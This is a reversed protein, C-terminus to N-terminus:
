SQRPQRRYQTPSQGSNRSFFRTFYAPDAFGLAYGIEAVSLNSYLLSRRAELIARQDLMAGPSRGAIRSCAMRLSTESTGLASAHVAISERLRFRNEIQARFRAVLGAYQGPDPTVVTGSAPLMRLVVVLMALLAAEVAVHHGKASWALEQRLTSMCYSLRTVAAEDPTLSQPRDFVPALDPHRTILDKLHTRALTLVSGSSESTWGFGHVVGAPILLLAPADFCMPADEAQMSGGGSTILFMQVLDAHAHPRITWESPRSRDDLQEVHVFGDDVARHPEGYLYFSPITQISMDGIMGSGNFSGITRSTIAHDALGHRPLKQHPRISGDDLPHFVLHASLNRDNASSRRAHEKSMQQPAVADVCYDQLPTVAGVYFSAYPRAHKLLDGDVQHM